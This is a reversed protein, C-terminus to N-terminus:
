LRRTRREILERYVNIARRAVVPWSLEREFHAIAAQRLAARDQGAVHVLAQVLAGPDGPRWLRGVSGRATLVRFPPIDTVVPTAGCALAEIVAFGSGEYRSGLVLVDAGAYQESMSSHPLRGKLHVRGPLAAGAGIRARVAKLLDEREYVMTLHADPLLELAREFGDLVTIPDKMEILRGVWLLAPSGPLREVHTGPRLTTSAEMVEHVPQDPSVIGADRWPGAIERATFLLGDVRRFSRRAIFQRVVDGPPREAHHQLVLVGRPEVHSAIEAVQRPFLLGNIHVVNARLEEVVSAVRPVANLLGPWHRGREARFVYRVGARVMEADRTFRQVVSVRSVGAAALAENWGTLAHYRELLAAPDSVRPDYALNVQAVHV